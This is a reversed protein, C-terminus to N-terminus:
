DARRRNRVLVLRHRLGFITALVALTDIFHGFWGWTRKKLLPYFASRITLPLGKNYAFFALSLGVVAFIAWPHLGWHFMTAGMAAKAGEPTNPPANLPTGFWDTYYGVPEAVAWFMLGIGMGAAFLMALWSMLSFEPKADDGGIRTKGVPLVILALCFVVFINAGVMFLWDFHEISWGKAGDFAMKADEPAAVTGVVFLIILISTIWFVPHHVDVGWKQVNHEGVQHDSSYRKPMFTGWSTKVCM